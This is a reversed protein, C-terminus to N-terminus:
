LLRVQQMIDTKTKSKPLLHHIPSSLKEGEKVLVMHYFPFAIWEFRDGM